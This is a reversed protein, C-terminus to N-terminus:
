VHVEEVADVATQGPQVMYAKVLEAWVDGMTGPIIPPFNVGRVKAKQKDSPEVRYVFETTKKEPDKRTGTQAFFDFAPEILKAASGQIFPVKVDKKLKQREAESTASALSEERAADSILMTVYKHWLKGTKKNHRYLFKNLMKSTANRIEGWYKNTILKGERDYITDLGEVYESVQYQQFGSFGDWALIDIDVDYIEPFFLEPKDVFESFEDYTGLTIHFVHTDALDARGRRQLEAVVTSLGDGGVDTSVVLVRLNFREILDVLGFTKGTGSGGYLGIKIYRSSADSLKKVQPRKAKAASPAKPAPTGLFAEKVTVSPAGGIPALATIPPM